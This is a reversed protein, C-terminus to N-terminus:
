TTVFQDKKMFIAAKAYLMYSSEATHQAIMQINRLTTTSFILFYFAMHHQVSFCDRLTVLIFVNQIQVIFVFHLLIHKHLARTPSIPITLLVVTKSINTNGQNVPNSLSQTYGIAM